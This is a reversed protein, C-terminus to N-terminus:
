IVLFLCKSSKIEVKKFTLSCYDSTLLTHKIHFYARNTQPSFPGLNFILSVKVAAEM